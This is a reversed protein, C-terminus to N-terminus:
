SPPTSASSAVMSIDANKRSRRLTELLSQTRTPEPPSQHLLNRRHPRHPAPARRGSRRLSSGGGPRRAVQHAIACCTYPQLRLRKSETAPSRARSGSNPAAAVSQGRGGGGGCVGGRGAVASFEVSWEPPAPVTCAGQKFTHHEPDQWLLLHTPEKVACSHNRFTCSDDSPTSPRPQRRPYDAGTARDLLLRAFDGAVELLRGRKCGCVQQAM